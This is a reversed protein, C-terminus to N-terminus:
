QTPTQKQDSYAKRLDHGPLFRSNPDKPLGGCGCECTKAIVEKVLEKGAETTAEGQACRSDSGQVSAPHTPAAELKHNEETRGEASAVSNTEANSIVEPMAQDRFMPGYDIRPVCIKLPPNGIKGDHTIMRDRKRRKGGGDFTFLVEAKASLATAIHICDMPALSPFDKGMKQAVEAIPPTLPRWDIRDSQMLEIAAAFEDLNLGPNSEDPRVEAIAITSCVIGFNGRKEQEILHRIIDIRDRENPHNSLIAIFLCSDWYQLPKNM